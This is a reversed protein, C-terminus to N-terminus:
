AVDKEDGRDDVEVPRGPSQIHPMNGVNYVNPNETFALPLTNPVTKWTAATYSNAPCPYSNSTCYTGCNEVTTANSTPNYWYFTPNQATPPWTGSVSGTQLNVYPTNPM